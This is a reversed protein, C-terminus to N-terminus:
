PYVPQVRSGNKIPRDTPLAVSEGDRLGSVVQVKTVSSVGLQVSRWAIHDDSTLVFVGTQAGDRRLVEKPIVLANDVVRSVIEANINTGPLLDRDPNRIVCSVEGVQRTSNALQVVQTPMKDVVGKWTRGPMADWTITVPMGVAVRGLDPEDIYVIVRVQELRGIKAVVTGVNVFSGPRLDFDYVTGAIPSRVTSLALDHKALAANAEAERLKAGAVQKQVPQVLAAKRKELGEIQTQLDNVRAQATDVDTKTGAQKAYLRQAAALNTQATQLDLRAKALDNDIETRELASGGQRITQEQAQAQAIQAEAASLEADASNTNLGVLPAGQAVQAGRQVYVSEVVGQREARAEAWQIPEVKGNTTLTSTITDRAVKIFPIEPPSTKRKIGLAVLLAIFAFFIAALTRRRITIRM